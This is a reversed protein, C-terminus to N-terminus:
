LSLTEWVGMKSAREAQGAQGGWGARGAQGQLYAKLMESNNYVGIILGSDLINDNNDFDLKLNKKNDNEILYGFSYGLKINELM